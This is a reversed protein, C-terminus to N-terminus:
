SYDVSLHAETFLCMIDEKSDPEVAEPLEGLSGLKGM